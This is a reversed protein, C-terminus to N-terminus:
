SVQTYLDRFVDENKQLKCSILDVNREEILLEHMLHRISVVNM